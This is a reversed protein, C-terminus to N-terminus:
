TAWSAYRAAIARSLPTPALKRIAATLNIAHHTRTDIAWAQGSWDGQL